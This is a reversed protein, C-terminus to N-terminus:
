VAHPTLADALEALRRTSFHEASAALRKALEDEMTFLINHRMYDDRSALQIASISLENAELESLAGEEKLSAIKMGLSDWPWEDPCHRACCSFLQASIKRSAELRTPNLRWNDDNM